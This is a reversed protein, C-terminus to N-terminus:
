AAKKLRDLGDLIFVRILVQYPIGQILAIAKLENITTQDLAISTPKKPSEKFRKMAALIKKSDLEFSQEYEPHSKVYSKKMSLGKKRTHKVLVSSESKEKVSSLLSKFYQVVLVQVSLGWLQENAVPSIQIGLPLALGSRFVSEIEETTVGHKVLNKSSNGTDWEFEFHSTELIWFLLWEVFEWQAM